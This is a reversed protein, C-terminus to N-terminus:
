GFGKNKIYDVVDKIKPHEKCWEMYRKGVKTSKFLSGAAVGVACAAFYVGMFTPDFAM